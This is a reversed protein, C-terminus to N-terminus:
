EAPKQSRLSRPAGRELSIRSTKKSEQQATDILQRLVPELKNWFLESLDLTSTYERGLGDADLVKAMAAEVMPVIKKVGISPPTEKEKCRLYYVWEQGDQVMHVRTTMSVPDTAKLTEKVQDEVTKQEEIIPRKSVTQRQRLNSLEQQTRILDIAVQLVRQPLEDIMPRVFGREKTNSVSFSMKDKKTTHNSKIESALVASIMKPLDYSAKDAYDVLMGRDVKRLIELIMEANISPTSSSSKMRLYLPQDSGELLVEVCTLCRQSMEDHLISRYTRIRENLLSKHEDCEKDLKNIQAQAKCYITMAARDEEKMTYRKCRALQDLAARKPKCEYMDNKQM